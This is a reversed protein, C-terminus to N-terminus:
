INYLFSITYEIFTYIDRAQFGRPTSDAGGLTFLVEFGYQWKGFGSVYGGGLMPFHVKEKDANNDRDLQAVFYNYEAKAYFQDALRYRLYSYLGYNFISYDNNGIENVFGYEAKLGVGATFPESIKYGAGFKGSIFFGNSFGLNGIHIDYALKEAFPLTETDSNRDSTRSTRSRSSKRQGYSEAITALCFFSILAAIIYKKSFM